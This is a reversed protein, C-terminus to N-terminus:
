ESLWKYMYVGIGSHPWRQMITTITDSFWKGDRSFFATPSNMEEANSVNSIVM